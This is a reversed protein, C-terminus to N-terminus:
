NWGQLASATSATSKHSSREISTGLEFLPL